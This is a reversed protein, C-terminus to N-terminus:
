KLLEPTLNVDESPICELGLLLFFDKPMVAMATDFPSKGFLSERIYCNLHNSLLVTDERVLHQLSTRKPIVRRILKHNTECEAKQDSRNAECFLSTYPKGGFVSREMGKMDM